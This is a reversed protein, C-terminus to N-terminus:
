YKEEDPPIPCQTPNCRDIELPAPVSVRHLRATIEALQFLQVVPDNDAGDRIAAFLLACVDAAQRSSSSSSSSSSDQDAGDAREWLSAMAHPLQPPPIETLASSANLTPLTGAAATIAAALATPNNNLATALRASFAPDSIPKHIALLKHCAHKVPTYQAEVAKALMPIVSALKLHSLLLKECLGQLRQM